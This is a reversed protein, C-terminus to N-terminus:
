GIEIKSDPSFLFRELSGKTEWIEEFSDYSLPEFCGWHTPTYSEFVVRRYGMWSILVKKLLAVREEILDYERESSRYSYIGTLLYAVKDELSAITQYTSYSEYNGSKFVGIPSYANESISHDIQTGLTLSHTSSSNTEFANLRVLLHTM